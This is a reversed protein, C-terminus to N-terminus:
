AEGDREGDGGAGPEAHVLIGGLMGVKRRLLQEIALSREHVEAVSLQPAFVCHILVDISGKPESGWYLRVEHCDDVGPVSAALQRIREVLAPEEGTLDVREAVRREPGELHVNVLRLDPNEETVLTELQTALLHAIELPMKPDVEVHVDAELCEGVARVQVHHAQVGLQRALFQIQDAATEGADTLPEVHIVVDVRRAVARVADEVAETIDHAQAFTTTRPAAVVIDAFLRHGARRLRVRRCERVGAVSAAAEAVRHAIDEPARDMLADVTERALRGGVVIVVLAVIIAADADARGWLGPDGIAQGLQVGALGVFVVASSWIDTRFHLADAALAESGYKAAARALARSRSFDVVMSIAVVLFAWVGAHVEVPEGGLRQVAEAIIWVATLLLLGAEVLASVNEVRAHGYPHEPDPPKDALRVAFLTLLAAVLDIGSHLAEAILGLSGTFLGVVLKTATLGVAAVVSTLAVFRKERQEAEVSIDEQAREERARIEVM